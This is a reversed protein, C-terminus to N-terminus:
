RVLPTPAVVQVSRAMREVTARPVDGLVTIKWVGMDRAYVSLVGRATARGPADPTTADRPEIYVSVNALGDSYMLHEAPNPGQSPHQAGLFVFGAPADAVRWHTAGVLATEMPTAMRGDESSPVLDSEKPKAGIDLAVFMFQELSHQAADLVASRLPLHTADELWLRYGYRYEDRPLIDVVRARYGAVRDEKGTGLTYLTAFSLGSVDPVLPLLRAARRNPLLVTPQGNQLCTITEGDRVVESRAGSMRVLREREDRGGAHSIRFADIRGNHEYIFSGQYNTDRVAVSMQALLNSAEDVPEAFALRTSALLILAALLPYTGRRLMAPYKDPFGFGFVCANTANAFQNEDGFPLNPDTAVRARSPDAPRDLLACTFRRM